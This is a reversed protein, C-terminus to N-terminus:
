STPPGAKTHTPEEESWRRGSIAAACVVTPIAVALISFARTTKM